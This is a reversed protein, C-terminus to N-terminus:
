QWFFLYDTQGHGDGTITSFTLVLYLAVILLRLKGVSKTRMVKGIFVTEFIYYYMGTRDMYSFFYGLMTFLIGIFYYLKTSRNTYLLLDYKENKELNVPESRTVIAILVFLILKIFLLVGFNFQINEFYKFYKEFLIVGFTVLTVSAIIIFLIIRRIQEKSLKKRAFVELALYIVGIISSKHFCYALLVGILFKFHKKQYLYKTAYFVIAVAVCQRMINFSMFYFGAYYVTIAWPLSIQDKFDWIRDFILVNTILAFVFFLFNDNDWIKLLVFCIYKFSTELGYALNLQGEAIRDFLETYGYTDIGVSNDRLGALLTLVMAAYIMYKKSNKIQALRTMMIIILFVVSYLIYTQM